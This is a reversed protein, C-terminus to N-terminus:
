KLHKQRHVTDESMQIIAQHNWNVNSKRTLWRKSIWLSVIQEDNAAKEYEGARGFGSVNRKKVKISNWIIKRVNKKRTM